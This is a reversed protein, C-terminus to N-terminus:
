IDKKAEHLYVDCIDNNSFYFWKGGGNQVYATRSSKKIYTTGNFDFTDGIIIFDFRVDYVNYYTYFKDSTKIFTVIGNNYTAKNNHINTLTKM